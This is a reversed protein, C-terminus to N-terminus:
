LVWVERRIAEGPQWSPSTTSIQSITPQDTQSPTLKNRISLVHLSKAKYICCPLIFLALVLIISILVSFEVTFPPSGNKIDINPKDNRINTEDSNPGNKEIVPRLSKVNTVSPNEGKAFYNQKITSENKVGLGTHMQLMNEKEHSIGVFINKRTRFSNKRSLKDEKSFLSKASTRQSGQNDNNRTMNNDNTNEDQARINDKNDKGHNRNNHKGNVFPLGRNSTNGEKTGHITELSKVVTSEKDKNMKRYTWNVHEKNDRSDDKNDTGPNDKNDKDRKRNNYNNDVGNIRNDDNGHTKSLDKNDAGLNRNNEM